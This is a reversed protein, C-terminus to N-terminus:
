ILREKGEFEHDYKHSCGCNYVSRHFEKRLQEWAMEAAYTDQWEGNRWRRRTLTHYVAATVYRKLLGDHRRCFTKSYRALIAEILLDVRSTVRHNIENLIEESADM